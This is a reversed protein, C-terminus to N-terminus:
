GRILQARPRRPSSPSAAEADERALAERILIEWAPPRVGLPLMAHGTEGFTERLCAVADAHEGLGSLIASWQYNMLMGSLPQTMEDRAEEADAFVVRAREYEGCRSLATTRTWLPYWLFKGWGARDGGYLRAVEVAEEAQAIAERVRGARILAETSDCRLVVLHRVSGARGAELLGRALHALAEDYRELHIAAWGLSYFADLAGSLNEEPLRAVLEQAEEYQALGATVDFNATVEAFAARAGAVVTPVDNAEAAALARQGHEFALGHEGSWRRLYLLRLELQAAVAPDLSPTAGLRELRDIAAHVRGTWQEIEALDLM